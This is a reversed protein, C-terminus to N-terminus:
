NLEINLARHTVNIIEILINVGGGRGFFFFIFLNAIDDM